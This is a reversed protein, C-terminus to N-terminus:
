FWTKSDFYKPIDVDLISLTTASTDMNTVYKNNGRVIKIDWMGDVGVVYHQSINPGKLGWMITMEINSCGGHRKNYGGHDTTM